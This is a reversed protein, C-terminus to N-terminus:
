NSSSNQSLGENDSYIYDDQQNNAEIQNDM